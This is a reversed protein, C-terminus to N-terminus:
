FLLLVYLDGLAENSPSIEPTTTVRVGGGEGLVHEERHIMEGIDKM